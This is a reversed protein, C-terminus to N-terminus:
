GGAPIGLPIGLSKPPVADPPRIYYLQVAAADLAEVAGQRVLHAAALAGGRDAGNAVLGHKPISSRYVAAGEGIAIFPATPLVSELSADVAESLPQPITTSSDFLQAYVRSKRADLLVLTRPNAILAARALLSSVPYVPVQRAEAIGLAIAVGVRLSTFAGPGITVAVGDIPHKQLMDAVQPVLWADANRVLRNEVQRVGHKSAWAVSIVPGATDISLINM